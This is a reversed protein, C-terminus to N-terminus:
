RPAALARGIAQQRAIDAAQVCQAMAPTGPVHGYERECQARFGAIQDERTMCGALVLMGVLACTM